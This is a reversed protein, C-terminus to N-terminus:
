WTPEDPALHDLALDLWTITVSLQRSSYASNDAIIQTFAEGIAKEMIRRHDTCDSMKEWTDIYYTEVFAQFSELHKPMPRYSFLTYSLEQLQATLRGPLIAYGGMEMIGVFEAKICRLSPRTMHGCTRPIMVMEYVPAEHDSQWCVFSMTQSDAQEQLLVPMRGTRWEDVLSRCAVRIANQNSSTLKIAVCPYDLVDVTLQAGDVSTHRCNASKAKFVPLRFKTAQYHLHALVSAGTGTRDTNSAIYIGQFRESFELLDDITHYGIAQRVHKKEIIVAHGECYPYPPCQVFFQRQNLQMEYARLNPRVKSDVNSWCLVCSADEALKPGVIAGHILEPKSLNFTVQLSTHFSNDDSEDLVVDLALRDESIYGSRVSWEYLFRWLAMHGLNSMIQKAAEQFEEQNADKSSELAQLIEPSLEEQQRFWPVKRASSRRSSSSFNGPRSYNRVREREKISDDQTRLASKGHSTLAPTANETLM